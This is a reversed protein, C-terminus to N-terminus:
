QSWRKSVSARKGLLARLQDLAVPKLWHDDVGAAQSLERAKADARGSVAILVTSEGGPQRKLARAVEFGDMFPLGLDLFVLEPRFELALKLATPGDHAVRVDQGLGQLLYRMSTTVDVSDDIVLVRRSLIPGTPIPPDM